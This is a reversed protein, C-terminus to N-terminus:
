VSYVVIDLDEPMDSILLLIYDTRNKKDAWPLKGDNSHIEM